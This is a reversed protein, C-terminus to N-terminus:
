NAQRTNRHADYTIVTVVAATNATVNQQDTVLELRISPRTSIPRTVVGPISFSSFSAPLISAGVGAAVLGMVNEQNIARQVIRPPHGLPHFIEMINTVYGPMSQYPFLVLPVEILDEPDIEPRTALAHNAPLVAVMQETLLTTFKLGAQLPADRMVGIDLRNELLAEV